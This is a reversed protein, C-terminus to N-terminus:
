LNISRLDCFFRILLQPVIAHDFRFSHVLWEDYFYISYYILWVSMAYSNGIFSLLNFGSNIVHLVFFCDYPMSMPIVAGPLYLYTYAFRFYMVLNQDRQRSFFTYLQVLPILNLNILYIKIFITFDFRM